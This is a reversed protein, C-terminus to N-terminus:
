PLKDDPHLILYHGILSSYHLHQKTSFIGFVEERFLERRYWTNRGCVGVYAHVCVCVCLVLSATYSDVKALIGPYKGTGDTRGQTERGM